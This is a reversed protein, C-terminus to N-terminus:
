LQRIMRSKANHFCLSRTNYSIVCQEQFFNLHHLMSPISHNKEKTICNFHRYYIYM